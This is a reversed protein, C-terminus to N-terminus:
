DGGHRLWLTHSLRAAVFLGVMPLGAALAWCLRTAGQWGLHPGCRWGGLVAPVACLLLGADMARAGLRGVFMLLAVQGAVGLWLLLLASPLPSLATADDAGAPAETARAPVHRAPEAPAAQGGAAAGAERQERARRRRSASQLDDVMAQMRARQRMRDPTGDILPWPDPVGVLLKALHVADDLQVGRVGHWRALVARPLGSATGALRKGAHLHLAVGVTPLWPLGLEGKLYADGLRRWAAPHDLTCCLRLQALQAAAPLRDLGKMLAQAQARDGQSNWPTALRQALRDVVEDLSYLRDIPVRRLWSLAAVPDLPWGHEGALLCEAARLRASVDGSEAALLALQRASGPPPEWGLRALLVPETELQHALLRLAPGHAADAQSRLWALSDATWASHANWMPQLRDLTAAHEALATDLAQLPAMGEWRALLAPLAGLRWAPPLAARAIQRAASRYPDPAAALEMLAVGAVRMPEAAYARVRDDVLGDLLCRGLDHVAEACGQAAAQSLGLM